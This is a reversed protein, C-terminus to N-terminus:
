LGEKNLALSLESFLHDFLIINFGIILVMERWHSEVLVAPFAFLDHSCPLQEFVIVSGTILTM